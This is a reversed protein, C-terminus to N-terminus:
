TPPPFPNQATEVPDTRYHGCGPRLCHRHVMTVGPHRRHECDQAICDEGGECIIPPSLKDICKPCERFKMM